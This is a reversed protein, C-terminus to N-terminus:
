KLIIIFVRIIFCKSVVENINEDFSPLSIDIAENVTANAGDHPAAGGPPIDYTEDDSNENYIVEDSIMLSPRMM